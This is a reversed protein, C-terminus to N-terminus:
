LPGLLFLLGKLGVLRREAFLKIQRQGPPLFVGSWSSLYGWEFSSAFRRATSLSGDLLTRLHADARMGAAYDDGYTQPYIRCGCTTRFKV